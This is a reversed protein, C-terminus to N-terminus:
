KKRSGRNRGVVGSAKRIAVGESDGRKLASNAIHAWQRKQKASKADKDHKSASSPAWPM